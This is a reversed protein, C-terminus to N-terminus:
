RFIKPKLKKAENVFFNQWEKHNITKIMRPFDKTDMAKLFQSGLEMADIHLDFKTKADILLKQLSYGKEKIAFYVDVFDRARAGTSITHVKNVIIDYLSDVIINKYTIGKEIRPFPYYCFDVKLIEKESFYLYFNHIGYVEKFEVKKIKIKKQIRNICGKIIETNVEEKENFFDLDESHRHQLYFEALATGGTFYFNQIIYNEERVTDLFINQKDTIIKKQEM